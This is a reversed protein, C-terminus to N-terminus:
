RLALVHRDRGFGKSWIMSARESWGALNLNSGIIPKDVLVMIQYSFGEIRELSVMPFKTEWDADMLIRYLKEYTRDQLSNEWTFQRGIM